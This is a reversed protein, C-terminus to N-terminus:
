LSKKGPKVKPTECSNISQCLMLFNMALLFPSVKFSILIMKMSCFYFYFNKGAPVDGVRNHWNVTPGYKSYSPGEQKGYFGCLKAHQIKSLNPSTEVLHVNVHSLDEPPQSLKQMTKLIDQMLTGHGPGLEVLQLPKVKGMKKWEHIIWIAISEGFMQSIEPSTVFDGPAGLVKEKTTYYGKVPNSLVETMFQSLTM